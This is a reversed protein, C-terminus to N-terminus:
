LVQSQSFQQVRVLGVAKGQDSRLLHQDQFTVRQDFQEEIEAILEAPLGGAIKQAAEPELGTEGRRQVDAAEVLEIRLNLPQLGAAVQGAHHADCAQVHVRDVDLRFRVSEADGPLPAVGDGGFGPHVAVRLQASIRHARHEARQEAAIGTRHHAFLHDATFGPALGHPMGDAGELCAGGSLPAVLGVGQTGVLVGLHGVDVQGVDRGLGPAIQGRAGTLDLAQRQGGVAAAGRTGARRLADDVAALFHALDHGHRALHRGGPRRHEDLTFAPHALLQHGAVDVVVRRVGLSGKQRDVAGARGGGSSSLSNNPCMRPAKVPASLLWLPRNTSAPM